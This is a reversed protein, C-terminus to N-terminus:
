PIDGNAREGPARAPVMGLRERLPIVKGGYLMSYYMTNAMVLKVYARTENFPISEAYVAGELPRADRWRRARGPGANYAALALVTHGLDDLVTRLYGTGLSVNVRPDTVHAANYGALGIRKATWRATAPMLQMLGMAGAASRADAMFRSEQRTLGLLLAEELNFTRAQEAFVERYPALFRLRFNHREITRNATNIARDHIGHRAALEAAALLEADPM